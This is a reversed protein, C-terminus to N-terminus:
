HCYIFITALWLLRASSFCILLRFCAGSSVDCGYHLFATSTALPLSSWCAAVEKSGHVLGIASFIQLNLLMWLVMLM